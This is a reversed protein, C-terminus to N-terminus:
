IKKARAPAKLAEIAIVGGLGGVSAISVVRIVAVQMLAHPAALWIEITIIPLAVLAFGHSFQVCASVREFAELAIRRGAISSFLARVLPSVWVLVSITAAIGLALTTAPEIRLISLFSRALVLSFVYLVSLRRVSIPKATLIVYIFALM